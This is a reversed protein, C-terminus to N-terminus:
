DNITKHCRVCVKDNGMLVLLHECYSGLMKMTGHEDDPM